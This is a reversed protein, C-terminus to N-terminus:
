HLFAIPFKEEVPFSARVPLHQLQTHNSIPNVSHMTDVKSFYMGALRGVHHLLNTAQLLGDLSKALRRKATVNNLTDASM